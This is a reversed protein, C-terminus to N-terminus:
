KSFTPLVFILMLIGIIIMAIMIIAPYAFAGRVKRILDYDRELQTAVLKLTEELQGSAEGARVMARFLESFIAPHADMAQSLTKGKRVSEALDLIARKFRPSATEHSLVELSKVASVGAGAMVALNRAFIMKQALPVHNLISFLSEWVVQSRGPRAIDYSILFFGQARLGAALGQRDAAERTGEIEEGTIKKARYSFLPM